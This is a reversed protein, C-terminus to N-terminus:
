RWATSETSTFRARNIRQCKTRFKGFCCHPRNLSHLQKNFFIVICTNERGMSLRLLNTHLIIQTHCKTVTTRAGQRIGSGWTCAAFRFPYTKFAFSVMHTVNHYLVTFPSLYRESHAPCHAYSLFTLGRSVTFPVSSVFTTLAVTVPGFNV